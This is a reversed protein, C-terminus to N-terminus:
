RQQLVLVIRDDLREEAVFVVAADAGRYAVELGLELVGVGQLAVRALTGEELMVHALFRGFADFFASFRDRDGVGEKM